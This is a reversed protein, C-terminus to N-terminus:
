HDSAIESMVFLVRIGPRQAGADHTGVAFRRARLYEIRRFSATVSLDSLVGVYGRGLEASACARHQDCVLV